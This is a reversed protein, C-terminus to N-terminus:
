AVALAAQNSGRCRDQSQPALGFRAERERMRILAVAEEAERRTEFEHVRIRRRRGNGDAVRIDIGYMDGQRKKSYRKVVSM